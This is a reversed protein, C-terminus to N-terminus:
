IHGYYSNKILDAWFENPVVIIVYRTKLNNSNKEKFLVWM